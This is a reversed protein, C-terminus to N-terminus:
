SGGPGDHLGGLVLRVVVDVGAARLIPMNKGRRSSLASGSGDLRRRVSRRPVPTGFCGERNALSGKRHKVFYCNNRILFFCGREADSCYADM